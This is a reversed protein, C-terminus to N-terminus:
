NEITKQFQLCEKQLITAITKPDLSLGFKKTIATCVTTLLLPLDSSSSLSLLNYYMRRVLRRLIYGRGENSPTIGDAILFFSTRLHDAVIRMRKENGAYALALVSELASLIYDFIDTEYVSDKGQLVKCMREFGMGTDVNKNEL